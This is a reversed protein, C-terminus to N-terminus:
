RDEGDLEQLITRGAERTQRHAEYDDDNNAADMGARGNELLELAVLRLADRPATLRPADSYIQPLADRLFQLRRIEEDIERLMGDLDDALLEGYDTLSAFGFRLVDRNEPVTITAVDGGNRASHSDAM